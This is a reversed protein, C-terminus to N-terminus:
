MRRSHRHMIYRFDKAMPQLVSKRKEMLKTEKMFRKNARARSEHTEHAVHDRREKELNVM